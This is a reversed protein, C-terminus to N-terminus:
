KFAEKCLESVIRRVKLRVSDNPMTCSMNTIIDNKYSKATNIIEIADKKTCGGAKANLMTQKLFICANEKDHAFPNLCASFPMGLSYLYMLNTIRMVGCLSKGSPLEGARDYYKLYQNIMGNCSNLMACPDYQAIDERMEIIYDLLKNYEKCESIVRYPTFLMEVANPNMRLLYNPM